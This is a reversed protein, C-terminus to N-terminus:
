LGRLPTRMESFWATIFSAGLGIATVLPTASNRRGRVRAPNPSHFGDCIACVDKIPCCLINLKVDIDRGFRTGYAIACDQPEQKVM